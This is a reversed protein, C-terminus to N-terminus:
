VMSQVQGDTWGDTPNSKASQWEHKNTQKNTRQGTEVDNGECTQQGENTPSQQEQNEQMQAYNKM